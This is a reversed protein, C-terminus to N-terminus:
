GGRRLSRTRPLERALVGLFRPGRLLYRPGLRRPEQAMRFFWELGVRSVWKPARARTGAVFDLSAGICVSVAPALQDRQEHAFLEQKPAGLALLVIDPKSERIRELLAPDVDDVSVRSSDTGVIQLTPLQELFKQKALEAVGPDGGLFFVRYARRAALRMLPWVLDSGSIKEPLPTGMLRSAWLVPMGDVVSLSAQEYASRFRESEDAMIVHDVNPTFVTGGRKDDVLQELRELAGAFDTVDIPLPGFRM